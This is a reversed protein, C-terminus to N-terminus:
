YNVSQNIVSKQKVEREISDLMRSYHNIRADLAQVYLNYEDAFISKKLEKLINKFEKGIDNIEKKYQRYLTGIQKRKDTIISPFLIEIGHNGKDSVIIDSNSSFENQLTELVTERNHEDYLRITIKNSYPTISSIERLPISNGYYEIVINEITGPSIRSIGNDNIEEEFRKIMDNFTDWIKNDFEISYIQYKYKEQIVPQQPNSCNLYTSLIYEGM